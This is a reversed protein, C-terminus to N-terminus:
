RWWGFHEHDRKLRAITDPDGRFPNTPPTPLKLRRSRAFPTDQIKMNYAKVLLTELNVVDQVNYALMTELAKDNGNDRFDHWLLVAFAGDIGELEGRSLGLQHECGKLGGRYGLSRLVHMLDIHAHEMPLRLYRRIFPVDFSKGNYTVILRYDEVADAFADLNDGQVFTRISTGDYLAISTITDGPVGLGTTEIDLYAVRNRFDPYLRWHERTALLRAFYDPNGVELEEASRALYGRVHTRKYTSLPVDDTSTFTKWDRIGADWLKRETTPGVTPIHCFTNTLM